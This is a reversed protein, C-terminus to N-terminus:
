FQKGVRVSFVKEVPVIAVEGDCRNGSNLTAVLLHAIREAEDDEVVVGVSVESCDESYAVGRYEKTSIQQSGAGKIDVLSVRLIREKALAEKIEDLKFPKFIAEIKKM